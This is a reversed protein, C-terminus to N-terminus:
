ATYLGKLMEPKLYIAQRRSRRCTEPFKIAELRPARANTEWPVSDCTLSPDEIAAWQPHHEEVAHQPSPLLTPSTPCCMPRQQFEFLRLTAPRQALMSPLTPLTHGM